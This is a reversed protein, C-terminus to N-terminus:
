TISSQIEKTVIGGQTILSSTNLLKSVRIVQKLTQNQTLTHTKNKSLNNNVKTKALIRKLM